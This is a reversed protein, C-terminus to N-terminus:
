LLVRANRKDLLVGETDKLINMKYLKLLASKIKLPDNHYESLQSVGYWVRKRFHM